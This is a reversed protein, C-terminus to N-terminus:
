PWLIVADQLDEPDYEPADDPHVPSPEYDDLDYIKSVAVDWLRHFSNGEEDSSLLIAMDDPFEALAARLNGVTKPKPESM